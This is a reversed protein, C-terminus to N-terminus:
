RRHRQPPGALLLSLWGFPVGILFWRVDNTLFTVILAGPGLIFAGTVAILRRTSAAIYWSSNGRLALSNFGRRGGHSRM